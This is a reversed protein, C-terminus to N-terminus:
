TFEKLLIERVNKAWSLQTEIETSDMGMRKLQKIANEADEFLPMTEELKKKAEPPLKITKHRVDDAM